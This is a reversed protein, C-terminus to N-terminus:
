EKKKGKKVREQAIELAAARPPIKKQASRELVLLTNKVIREQVMPFVDREAGGIYEIYSSIVGGANAIFDPVILIGKKYLEQEVEYTMPINAGQVIIKAKVKHKNRSNIVDAQAAPIFIDAPVSIIEGNKLKKGSGYAAVTGEDKKIKVLKKYDLGSPLYVGGQSDSIAVLKAGAETLYQAAFSGVNGFGEIAITMTRLDKGLHKAAAAAAHYVGWGTSGLEHPIGHAKGQHMTSPKGTASHFAGNATVFSRMEEEGTSIDPAAVYLSPCIPRLATGFAAMLGQKQKDSLKKPDAIIGSKGGGFPLEALACKWTMARALRAVEEVSVTPTMRIGGKAPGLATNDIVT